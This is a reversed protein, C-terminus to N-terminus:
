YYAERVAKPPHGPHIYIPVDLKEARALLPEYLPDDLFRGDACIGNVMAGKFRHDRVRADLEDAAAEPATM